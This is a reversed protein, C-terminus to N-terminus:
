ARVTRRVADTLLVDLETRAAERLADSAASPYDKPLFPAKLRVVWLGAPLDARRTVAARIQRKLLSRMVSRKAHRKPVVAGLWAGALETAPSQAPPPASTLDDVPTSCEPALGTSLETSVRHASPKGPLSPVGEVHHIAFHPSRARTPATLVREFDASRVIRGIV